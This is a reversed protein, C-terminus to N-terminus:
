IDVIECSGSSCAFTQSGSTTDETEFDALENWAIPNNKEYTSLMDHMDEEIAQYPAQKYTHGVYPLFSIGSVDDFNEYVWSGVEMWEHEKIYVTISPKHECWHEQYTKWLDLQELASVDEVTTSREPSKIPFSFVTTGSPNMADPEAPVGQNVLFQTLPDKNDGRVTRIYQPSFRPHIGSASDVLQSVTGSPKVCTTATAQPIDLKKSFEKNTSVVEEKLTTLIENLEPSLESMIKSDMIGTLSVGLLREEETNTTWIKRLYKFKILTAQFTGLIAALRVKEKLDELTDENRVVTETLNCFQYPRLIIESNHAIIGEVVGWHNKPETFDFVEENSSVSVSRVKPSRRILMEKLAERKYTQGFNICESFKVIDYYRGINVDYSEKCLYEGNSFKNKKAKNVTIRADIDFTDKLVKVLTEAQNKDITKLAVRGNKIVCGNASFLGQLCEGSHLNSPLGRKGIKEAPLNFSAAVELAYRSYWSSREVKANWAEAIEWDKEMNFFVELGRHTDSAMRHLNADGLMFGALFDESKLASSKEEIFPMPQKGKLDKAMCEGGDAMMFVHDDTCQIPKKNLQGEWKVLVTPKVGSSWVKGTTLAGDSSVINVHGEKSLDEFSRYGEETLLKMDGAFCCPNVGFEHNTDRRGNKAAVAKAANRNFIGREGSGSDHLASWERMFAGMSPKETYCTSNNALRREPASDWWQGDKAHRMREDSFNSLSIFASRRVGGVVVVEGIKCMIDHCELSSLKRGAASTMKDVVYTFLSHLPDPGSSRGGFTKLRAGAPRLKSLDWKPIQGAYLMSILERLGRAWGAKSDAVVITTDSNEFHENIEPLKNILQREVSFGVGTGCMAVYLAEDFARPSDIPLYACNYGCINDIELAPGATMLARMSPMVKLTLIGDKLEKRLKKPITYNHNELLHWDMFCMYREVTEVWTERRGDEELWRAYKSQHIFTQYDTPLTKTIM